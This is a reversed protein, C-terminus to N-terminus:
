APSSAAVPGSVKGLEILRLPQPDGRMLRAQGATVVTDGAAIASGQVEVKGDRRAGAAVEIRQSMPGKPGPVVKILFQKSGQPVLAEEPVMVANARQAFVVRVRAFMGPRLLRSPNDLRARVLLSRGNADLQPDVAEIVAQMAKGPLADLAVEARQQPQVRTLFREPLRFDVFVSSIDELGVLDAGDKVYDGLSVNRIGVIGDFPATIKMRGLRTRSLAAQAQAVELAAASEDLVRQAVFNQAVLDKNRQHNAVAIGVQAEAQRLEAAQLQDDLQVLLQGKRVPQGDAFGLKVIRGAVEPRLMVGQRSRLSGVASADDQVARSEARAVEVAVAGAPTAAAATAPAAAEATAHTSGKNQWWYAMGSAAAIGAVAVLTHLKNM